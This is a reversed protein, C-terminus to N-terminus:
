VDNEFGIFVRGHMWTMREFFFFCRFKGHRWRAAQCQGTGVCSRWVWLCSSRQMQHHASMPVPIQHLPHLGSTTTLLEQPSSHPKPPALVHFFALSHGPQDPQIDYNPPTVLQATASRGEWHASPGNHAWARVSWPDDLPSPEPRVSAFLASATCILRDSLVRLM